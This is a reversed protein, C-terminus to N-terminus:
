TTPESRRELMAAIGALPAPSTGVDIVRMGAGRAAGAGAAGRELALCDEPATSLMAAALHYCDPAPKGATVDRQTIIADFLEPALRLGNLVSVTWDLPTTTVLGLRVGRAEAASLVAGLGPRRVLPGLALARAFHDRRSRLVAGVPVARRDAPRPVARAVVGSVRRARFDLRHDGFAQRTASRWLGTTDCLVDLSGLLLAKM